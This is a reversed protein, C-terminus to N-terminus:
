LTHQKHATRQRGCSTCRWRVSSPCSTTSALQGLEPGGNNSEPMDHSGKPPPTQLRRGRSGRPRYHMQVKNNNNNNKENTTKRSSLQVHKSKRNLGLRYAIAKGSSSDTNITMTVNDTDMEPISMEEIVQLTPNHM